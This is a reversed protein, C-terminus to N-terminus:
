SSTSSDWSLKLKLSAEASSKAVFWGVEGSLAVGIEMEVRDPKLRERLSLQVQEAAEAIAGLRGVAAPNLAEVTPKGGYQSVLDGEAAQFVAVTEEGVPIELFESM